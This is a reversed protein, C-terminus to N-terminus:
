REAEQKLGNLVQWLNERVCRFRGAVVDDAEAPNELAALSTGSMGAGHLLFAGVRTGGGLLPQLTYGWQAWPTEPDGVNYVFKQGPEWVTVWCPTEWEMAGVLRLLIANIIPHGTDDTANRGKFTSGVGRPGEDTWDAGASERCHRAPLNIDTALEWVREPDAAIDLEVTVGRGQCPHAREETPLNQDTFGWQDFYTIERAPRRPVPKFDTGTTYAVPFLVIQTLGAPIGLLEAVEAARQLHL